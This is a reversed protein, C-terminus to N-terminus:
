DYADKRHSIRVILIILKDVEKVYIVMYTRLRLRYYGSWDGKLAKIKGTKILEKEYDANFNNQFDALSKLVFLKIPKDLFDLDKKSNASFEIKYM